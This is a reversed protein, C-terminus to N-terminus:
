RHDPRHRQEVHCSEVYVLSDAAIQVLVQAIAPIDGPVDSFTCGGPLKAHLRAAANEGVRGLLHILQARLARLLQDRHTLRQLRSPGGCRATSFLVPRCAACQPGLRAPLLLLPPLFGIILLDSSPNVDAAMIKAPASEKPEAWAASTFLM